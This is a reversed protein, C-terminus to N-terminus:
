TTRKCPNSRFRSLVHKSFHSALFYKLVNNKEKTLIELYKNMWASIVDEYMTEPLRTLAAKIAVLDEASLIIGNSECLKKFSQKEKM